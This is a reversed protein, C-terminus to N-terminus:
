KIRLTSCGPYCTTTCYTTSFLKEVLDGLDRRGVLSKRQAVKHRTDDHGSPM